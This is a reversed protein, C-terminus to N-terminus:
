LPCVGKLLLNSVSHKIQVVPIDIQM